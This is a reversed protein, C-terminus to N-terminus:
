EGYSAKSQLHESRSHSIHNSVMNLWTSKVIPIRITTGIYKFSCRKSFATTRDKLHPEINMRGYSEEKELRKVQHM